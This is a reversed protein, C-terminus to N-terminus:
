EEGQELSLTWRYTAKAHAENFRLRIRYPVVDACFVAVSPLIERWRTLEYRRLASKLDAEGDLAGLAKLLAIRTENSARQQKGWIDEYGSAVGYLRCLADLSPDSSVTGEPM